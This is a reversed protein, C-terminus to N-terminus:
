QIKYIKVKNSTKKYTDVFDRGSIGYFDDVNTINIYGGAAIKMDSGWQNLIINDPIKVFIQPGGKPQYFGERGVVEVYKDCFKQYKIIWENKNGNEDIIASGDESAKTVVMDLEGTEQDITVFDVKEVIPNGNADVSMTTVKEGLIGQRALLRAFKVAEFPVLIGSELGEKVYKLVDVKVYNESM